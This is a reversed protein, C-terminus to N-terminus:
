AGDRNIVDALKSSGFLKTLVQGLTCLELGPYDYQLCWHGPRPVLCERLGPLTRFHFLHPRSTSARGADLISNIQTHIPLDTGGELAKIDKNLVTSLSSFEAYDALLPDGSETCADADLSPAGKATRRVGEEGLVSVIRAAAAKTNRSGNNR